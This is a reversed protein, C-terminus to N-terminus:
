LISHSVLDVLAIYLFLGGTVAFLYQRALDTSAAFIGVIAGIYSTLASLLNYILAKKWGMGSAYLIAFDGILEM